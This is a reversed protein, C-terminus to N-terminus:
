APAFLKGGGAHGGVSRNHFSRGGALHRAGRSPPVPRAGRRRGLGLRWVCHLLSAGRLLSGCQGLRTAMDGNPRLGLRALSELINQALWVPADPHEQRSSLKYLSAHDMSKGSLRVGNNFFGVQVKRRELDVALSAVAELTREFGEVAGDHAFGSVDLSIVM